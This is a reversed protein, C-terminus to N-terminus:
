IRVSHFIRPQAKNELFGTLILFCGLAQATVATLSLNRTELARHGSPLRPERLGEELKEGPGGRSGGGGPGPQARKGGAPFSRPPAPALGSGGRGGGAPCAAGPRARGRGPTESAGAGGRGGLNRRGRERRSWRGAAGGRAEWQGGASDMLGDRASSQDDGPGARPTGGRPAGGARGPVQRRLTRLLSAPGSPGSRRRRGARAAM